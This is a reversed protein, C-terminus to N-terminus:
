PADAHVADYYNANTRWIPSTEDGSGRLMSLFAARYAPQVAIVVAGVLLAWMLLQVLARAGKDLAPASPDDASGYRGARLDPGVSASSGDAIRCGEHPMSQAGNEVGPDDPESGQM